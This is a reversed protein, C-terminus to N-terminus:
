RTVLPHRDTQRPNQLLLLKLEEVTFNNCVKKKEKTGM